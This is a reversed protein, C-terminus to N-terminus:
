TTTGREPQGQPQWRRARQRLVVASRPPDPGGLTGSVDYVSRLPTAGTVGQNRLAPTLNDSQLISDTGSAFFTGRRTNGGSKPVINMVLGATEAEGLGGATIFTVEEAQGVDM